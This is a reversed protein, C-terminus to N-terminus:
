RYADRSKGIIAGTRDLLYATNYHFGPYDESEEMVSVVVNTHLKAAYERSLELVRRYNAVANPNDRDASSILFEEPFCLLDMTTNQLEKLKKEFTALIEEQTSGFNRASFTMIKAPAYM